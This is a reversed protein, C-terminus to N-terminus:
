EQTADPTTVVRAGSNNAQTIAFQYQECHPHQQLQGVLNEASQWDTTIAFVTPGWSSQGVGPVGLERVTHVLKAIEPSAFPGGQVAAFCEGAEHGYDYIAQSFRHWDTNRAAPLIQTDILQRLYQTVESPVSPLSDIAATEAGGALGHRASQRILVFRWEAPLEVREALQGLPEEPLKGADVLLGGHLFGHTGVASRRGRGSVKSLLNADRWTMGLWEGVGATVALGLQTGVGLGTHEPSSSVVDIQCAPLAALQHHAAFSSAFAEVRQCLPGNARFTDAPSIRLNIGGHDVMMGLGGFQRGEGAFNTLGFHLRAPTSVEIMRTM